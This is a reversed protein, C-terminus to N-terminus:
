HQFLKMYLLYLSTISTLLAFMNSISFTDDKMWWFFFLTTLPLNRFPQLLDNSTNSKIHTGYLSLLNLNTLNQFGRLGTELFSSQLDWLMLVECSRLPALTEGPTTAFSAFLSLTLLNFLDDFICKPLDVLHNYRLNLDKLSHLGKFATSSMCSIENYSLDLALLMHLKEFPAGTINMLHNYSLDLVTIWNQNLLPVEFLDRYSCDMKTMEYTKCALSGTPYNHQTSIPDSPCIYYISILLLVLSNYSTSGAM